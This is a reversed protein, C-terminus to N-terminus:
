AHLLINQLRKLDQIHIKRDQVVLIGDRNFKSLTNIVSEKSYGVMNSLGIRTVPLTFEESKYIQYFELLIMALAGEINKRSMRTIWHVLNNTLSSCHQVLRLAFVGNRQILEQFIAMDILKVRTPELAISSFNLNKAAFSCIIGLFGGGSLLKITTQKQDDVVDLTALGEEIFMIHSAVFSQKIITEGKEYAVYCSNNELLQKEEDTLCALCDAASVNEIFLPMKGNQM